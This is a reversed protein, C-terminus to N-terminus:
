LASKQNMSPSVSAAAIHSHPSAAIAGRGCAARAVVVYYAGQRHLLRKSGDIREHALRAAELKEGPVRDALTARREGLSQLLRQVGDVVERVPTGQDRRDLIRRLEDRRQAEQPLEAGVDGDDGIGRREGGQRRPEMVARVAAGEDDVGM